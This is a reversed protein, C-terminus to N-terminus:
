PRLAPLDITVEAPQTMAVRGTASVLEQRYTGSVLTFADLTVEGDLDIIWYNPIGAEAYEALKAVRDVRATGPSVIEVALRVQDARGRKLGARADALSVVAVDPARLLPPFSEVLAVDVEAVAVLSHRALSSNLQTVLFGIALQHDFTPRPSMQLVGDVLEFRRSEDEPLADWEELTLLHDPWTISTMPHDEQRM